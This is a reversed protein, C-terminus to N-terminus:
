PSCLSKGEKCVGYLMVDLYEKMEAKIEESREFFADPMQQYQLLYKNLVANIYLYLGEVTVQSRAGDKLVLVSMAKRLTRTSEEKVSLMYRRTVEAKQEAIEASADRSAMNVMHMEDAYKVCIEIKRNMSEFLIEYFDTGEAEGTTETLREMAKALCYLYFKKKSGFYHFLIGKSIECKQTISDTSVDKYSKQSFEKIGVSLIWEKKSEPLKEFTDFSM